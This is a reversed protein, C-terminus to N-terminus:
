LVLGHEERLEVLEALIEVRVAKRRRRRGVVGGVISWRFRDGVDDDILSHM